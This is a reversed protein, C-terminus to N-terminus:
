HPQVTAATGTVAGTVAGTPAGAVPAVVDSGVVFLVGAGVILSEGAGESTTMVASGVILSEGAGEPIKGVSVSAGVSVGVILSEGLGVVERVVGGSSPDGAGEFTSLV